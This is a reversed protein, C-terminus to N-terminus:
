QKTRELWYFPERRFHVLALVLVRQDYGQYAIGYYRFRPLLFRRIPPVVVSAAPWSPWINPREMIARLAADVEVLLEDGLGRARRDYWDAAAIIESQADPHLDLKM